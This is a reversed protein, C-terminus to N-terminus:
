VSQLEKQYLFEELGEVVTTYTLEANVDLFDVVSCGVQTKATTLPPQQLRAKARKRDLRASGCRRSYLGGWRFQSKLSRIRIPDM